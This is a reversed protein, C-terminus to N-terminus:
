THCARSSRLARWSSPISSLFGLESMEGLTAYAEGVKERSYGVKALARCVELSILESTSVSVNSSLVLRRLRLAEEEFEEGKKFWKVVISSDLALSGAM